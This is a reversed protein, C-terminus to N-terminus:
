LIVKQRNESNLLSDHSFNYVYQVQLIVFWCQPYSQTPQLHYTVLFQCRHSPLIVSHVYLFTQYQVCPSREKGKHNHFFNNISDVPSQEAISSCEPIPDLSAIKVSDPTRPITIDEPEEEVLTWQEGPRRLVGARHPNHDHPNYNQMIVSVASIHVRSM